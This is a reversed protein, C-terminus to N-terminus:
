DALSIVISRFFCVKVFPAIAATDVEDNHSVGSKIPLSEMLESPWCHDIIYCTQFCNGNNFVWIPAAGLDEALKSTCKLTLHQLSLSLFPCTFQLLTIKYRFFNMIDLAMMLGTIGFMGLTDLGRKGHVLLNEGGSHM